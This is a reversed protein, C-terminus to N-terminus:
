NQRESLSWPFALSLFIHVFLILFREYVQFSTFVMMRWKFYLYDQLLFLRLGELMKKSSTEKHLFFGCIFNKWVNYHVLPPVNIKHM